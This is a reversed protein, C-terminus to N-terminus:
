LHLQKNTSLDPIGWQRAPLSKVPYMPCLIVGPESAALQLDRKYFEIRAATVLWSGWDFHDPIGSIVLKTCRFTTTDHMMNTLTRGSRAVRPGEGVRLYSAISSVIITVHDQVEAMERM